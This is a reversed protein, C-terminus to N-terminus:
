HMDKTVCWAGHVRALMSIARAGCDADEVLAERGPSQTAITATRHLRAGVQVLLAALPFLAANGCVKSVTRLNVGM